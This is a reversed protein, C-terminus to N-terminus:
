AGGCSPAPRGLQAVGVPARGAARRPARREAARLGDPAAAATAGRHDRRRGGRAGVRGRAGRGGTCVGRGTCRAGRRRPVAGRELGRPRRSRHRVRRRQTAQFFPPIHPRVVLSRCRDGFLAGHALHHQRRARGYECNQARACLADVTLLLPYRRRLGDFDRQDAACSVARALRSNDPAVAIREYLRKWEDTNAHAAMAFLVEANKWDRSRMLARAVAPDPNHAVAAFLDASRFERMAQPVDREGLAMMVGPGLLAMGSRLCETRRLKVLKETLERAPVAALLMSCLFAEDYLEVAHMLVSIAEIGINVDRRAALRQGMAAEERDVVGSLASAAARANTRRAYYMAWAGVGAERRQASRVAAVLTKTAGCDIMPQVCDIVSTVDMVACLFHADDLRMFPPSPTAGWPPRVDKVFVSMWDSTPREIEDVLWRPLPPAHPNDVARWLAHLGARTNFTAWQFLQHGVSGQSVLAAAVWEGPVSEFALVIQQLESPIMAAAFGTQLLCQKQTAGKKAVITEQIKTFVCEGEKVM